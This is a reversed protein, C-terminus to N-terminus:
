HLQQGEPTLDATGTNGNTSDRVVVRLRVAVEFDFSCTM